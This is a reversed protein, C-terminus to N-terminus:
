QVDNPDYRQTNGAKMPLPGGLIAAKIYNEPTQAVEHKVLGGRTEAYGQNVTTIGTYVKHRRLALPFSDSFPKRSIGRSNGAKEEDEDFAGSDGQHGAV